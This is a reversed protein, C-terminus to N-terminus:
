GRFLTPRFRKISDFAHPDRRLTGLAKGADTNIKRKASMAIGHEYLGTIPDPKSRSAEDGFIERFGRYDVQTIHVPITPAVGAVFELVDKLPLKTGLTVGKDLHISTGGGYSSIRRIDNYSTYRQTPPKSHDEDYRSKTHDITWLIHDGQFAANSVGRISM